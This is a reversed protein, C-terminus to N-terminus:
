SARSGRCRSLRREGRADDLGRLRHRDVFYRSCEGGSFCRGAAANHTPAPQTPCQVRDPHAVPEGAEDRPRHGRPAVEHWGDPATWGNQADSIRNPAARRGDYGSRGRARNIRAARCEGTGALREMPSVGDVRVDCRPVSAGFVWVWGGAFARISRRHRVDHWLEDQDDDQHDHVGREGPCFEREHGQPFALQLPELRRGRGTRHQGSQRALRILEQGRDLDADCEGAEQRRGESGHREGFRELFREAEESPGRRRHRDDDDRQDKGVERQHEALQCRFPQRHLLCLAPAHHHRPGEREQRLDRARDHPQQRPRGVDGHSQHAAVRMLLALLHGLLFQAVHDRCLHGERRMLAHDDVAGELDGLPRQFLDEYGAALHEHEVGVSVHSRASSSSSSDPWVRAGTADPRFRSLTTPNM